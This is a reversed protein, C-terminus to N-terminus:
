MLRDPTASLIPAGIRAALQRRQQSFGARFALTAHRAGAVQDLLDDQLSAAIHRLEEPDEARLGAILARELAALRDHARAVDHRKM